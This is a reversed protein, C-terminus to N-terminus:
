RWTACPACPSCALLCAAHCGCVGHADDHLAHDDHPTTLVVVLEVEIAERWCLAPPSRGYRTSVEAPATENYRVLFRCKLSGFGFEEALYDGSIIIEMTEAVQGWEPTIGTLVPRPITRNTQHPPGWLAPITRQPSLIEHIGHSAWPLIILVHLLWLLWRM